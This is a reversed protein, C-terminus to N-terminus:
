WQAITKITKIVVIMLNHAWHPQVFCRHWIMKYDDDDDWTTLWILSSTLVTGDLTVLM